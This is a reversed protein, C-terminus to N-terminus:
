PAQLYEEPPECPEACREFVRILTIEGEVNLLTSAYSQGDEAMRRMLIYDAEGTSRTRAIRYHTRDDVKVTLLEADRHNGPIFNEYHVWTDDNYKVSYGSHSDVTSRAGMSRVRYTQVGDEVTISIIEYKNQEGRFQWSLAPNLVWTGEFPDKKESQASATAAGSVVLCAVIGAVVTSSLRATSM